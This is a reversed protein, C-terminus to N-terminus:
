QSARVDQLFGQQGCIAMIMMTM